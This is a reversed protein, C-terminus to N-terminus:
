KSGYSVSRVFLAGNWAFAVSRTYPSPWWADAQASVLIGEKPVAVLATVDSSPTAEAAVTQPQAVIQPVLWLSNASAQSRGLKLEQNSPFAYPFLMPPPKAEFYGPFKVNRLAGNAPVCELISEGPMIVRMVRFSLNLGGVTSAATGNELSLMVEFTRTRRVTESSGEIDSITVAANNLTGTMAIENAGSLSGFTATGSSTWGSFSHGQEKAAAIDRSFVLASAGNTLVWSEHKKQTAITVIAHDLLPSIDVGLSPSDEKDFQRSWLPRSAQLVTDLISINLTTMGSDNQIVLLAQKSGALWEVNTIKDGKYLTLVTKSEDQDVDFVGIALGDKTETTYALARGNPAWFVEKVRKAVFQPKGLKIGSAEQAFAFGTMTVVLALITVRM